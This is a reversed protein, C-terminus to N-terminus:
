VWIPPNSHAVLVVFGALLVLLVGVLLGTLLVLPLWVLALRVLLGALATLLTALVAGLILLSYFGVNWKPEPMFAPAKKHSCFGVFFGAWDSRLRMRCVTCPKANLRARALHVCM